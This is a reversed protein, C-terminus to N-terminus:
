LGRLARWPKAKVCRHSVIVREEQTPLRRASRGLPSRSSPPRSPAPAADVASTSRLLVREAALGLVGEPMAEALAHRSDDWPMSQGLDYPM